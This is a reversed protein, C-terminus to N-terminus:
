FTANMFRSASDTNFPSVDFPESLTFRFNAPQSMVKRALSRPNGTFQLAIARTDYGLSARHKKAWQAISAFDSRRRLLGPFTLGSLGAFPHRVSRPERPDTSGAFAEALSVCTDSM